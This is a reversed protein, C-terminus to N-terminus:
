ASIFTLLRDLDKYKRFYTGFHIVKFEFRSVGYLFQERPVLLYNRIRYRSFAEQNVENNLVRVESFRGFMESLDEVQLPVNEEGFNFEAILLISTSYRNEALASMRSAHTVDGDFLFTEGQLTVWKIRNEAPRFQNLAESIVEATVGLFSAVLASALSQYYFLDTRVYPRFQISQNTFNLRMIAERSDSELFADANPDTLSFTFDERRKLSLALPDDANLVAKEAKEVLSRKADRIDLLTNIGSVGLHVRKINLLVGVRPKLIRALVEIHHPRYMSYELCLVEHLPDMYNVIWSSLNLPTLRKSYIRGCEFRRSLISQIMAATTTKGVSGTVGVVLPNLISLVYERLQNIALFVDRVRLYKLGHMDSDPVRSDVVFVIDRRQRLKPINKTRDFSNIYWGEEKPNDEYIVFYLEDGKESNKREFERIYAVNLRNFSTGDSVNYVEADLIARITEISIQV